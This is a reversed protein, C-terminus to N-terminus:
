WNISPDGGCWFTDSFITVLAAAGTFVAVFYFAWRLLFEHRPILHFYIALMSLKPLYLGADFFINTAFRVQGGTLLRHHKDLLM